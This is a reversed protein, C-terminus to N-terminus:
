LSILTVYDQALDNLHIPTVKGQVISHFFQKACARNTTLDRVTATEGTTECQICVGFHRTGDTYESEFLQYIIVLESECNHITTRKVSEIYM